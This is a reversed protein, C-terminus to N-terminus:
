FLINKNKNFFYQQLKYIQLMLRWFSPFISIQFSFFLINAFKQKLIIVAEKESTSLEFNDPQTDRTLNSLPAAIEAFNKIFDRFYGALGLFQRVQKKNVPFKILKLKNVKAPDM